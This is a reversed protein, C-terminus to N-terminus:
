GRETCFRLSPSDTTLVRVPMGPRAHRSLARELTFWLHYTDKERDPLHCIVVERPRFVENICRQGEPNHYFIPNVFAADLSVGALAKEFHEPVHDADGTFLLNSGGVSVLFSDNRVGTFAKGMHVGGIVTVGLGEGLGYTKAQGPELSGNWQPVGLEGAFRALLVAEVSGCRPDPTFLGKTRRYRLHEMVLGPTFHDPHEHTFLLYELQQFPADGQRMRVLTDRDVRDFPHDGQDHIGDVLLGTGGGRVLIGANAVLTVDICEAM